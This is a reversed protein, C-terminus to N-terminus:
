WPSLERVLLVAGSVATTFMSAGAVLLRPLTWVVTVLTLLVAAALLALTMVQFWSAREELATNAQGLQNAIVGGSAIGSVAAGLALLPTLLLLIVPV